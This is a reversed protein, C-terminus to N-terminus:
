RRRWPTPVGKGEGVSGRAAGRWRLFQVCVSRAGLSCAATADGAACSSSRCTVVLLYPMGLNRHFAEYV